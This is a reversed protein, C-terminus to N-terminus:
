RSGVASRQRRSRLLRYVGMLHTAHLRDAGTHTAPLARRLRIKQADDSVGVPSGTADYGVLAGSPGAPSCMHVRDKVTKVKGFAAPRERPGQAQLPREVGAFDPGPDRCM